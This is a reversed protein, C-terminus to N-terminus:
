VHNRWIITTVPSNTSAFKAQTFHSEIALHNLLEHAQHGVAM